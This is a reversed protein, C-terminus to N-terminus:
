AKDQDALILCFMSFGGTIHNTISESRRSKVGNVFNWSLNRFLQVCGQSPRSVKAIMNLKGYANSIHPHTIKQNQRQKINLGTKHPYEQLLITDKRIAYQNMHERSESAAVRETM